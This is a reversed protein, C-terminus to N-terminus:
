RKGKFLKIMKGAQESKKSVSQGTRDRREIERRTQAKSKEKKM